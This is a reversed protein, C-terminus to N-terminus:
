ATAEGRLREYLDEADSFVRWADERTAYRTFSEDHLHDYDAGVKVCTCKGDYEPFELLSPGGHFPLESAAEQWMGQDRAFRAFRPHGPYIYAYVAWRHEGRADFCASEERVPESHRTVTVLFSRERKRWEDKHDWTTTM